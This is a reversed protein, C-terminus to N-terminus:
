NRRDVQGAALRFSVTLVAVATVRFLTMTSNLNPKVSSTFSYAQFHILCEASIVAYPAKNINDKQNSDKSM